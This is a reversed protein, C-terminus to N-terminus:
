MWNYESGTLPRVSKKWELRLTSLEKGRNGEWWRSYVQKVRALDTALIVNSDKTILGHSYAYDGTTLLFTCDLDDHLADRALILEIVYAYIVGSFEDRQSGPPVYSLIPNALMLTSSPAVDRDDIREILVPIISKGMHHLVIIAARRQCVTGSKLTELYRQVDRDGEPADLKQSGSLSCVCGLLM